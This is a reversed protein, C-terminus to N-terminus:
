VGLRQVVYNNSDRRHFTIESFAMFSNRGLTQKKVRGGGGWNGNRPETREQLLREREREREGAELPITLNFEGPACVEERM